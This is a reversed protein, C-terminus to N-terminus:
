NLEENFYEKLENANLSNILKIKEVYVTEVERKEVQLQNYLEVSENILQNEYVIQHKLNIIEQQKQDIIKQAKKREQKIIKSNIGKLEKNYSFQKLTIFCLVVIIVNKIANLYKPM